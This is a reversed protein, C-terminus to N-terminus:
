FKYTLGVNVTYVDVDWNLDYSGEGFVYTESGDKDLLRVYDAFISINETIDYSVGAGWQFGDEDLWKGHNDSLEVNGYGLLGYIDFQETVPFIPKVYIGWARLEDGDNSGSESESYPVGDEIGSGSWSWDGDGISHWYRGELALYKNFKYGLQGMIGNYDVEGKGSFSNNVDM